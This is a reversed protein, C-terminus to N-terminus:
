LDKKCCQLPNRLFESLSFQNNDESTGSSVVRYNQGNDM